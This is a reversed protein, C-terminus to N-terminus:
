CPHAPSSLIRQTFFATHESKVGILIGQSQPGETIHFQYGPMQKVVEDHVIKGVVEYVAVIDAKQDALFKIIPKIDKTPKKSNKRKAGFHEVNWSAVSFAKAM